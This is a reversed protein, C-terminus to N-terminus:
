ANPLPRSVIPRGARLLVLVGDRLFEEQPRTLDADITQLFERLSVRISEM